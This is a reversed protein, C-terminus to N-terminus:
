LGHGSVLREMSATIVLETWAIAYSAVQTLLRPAVLALYILGITFTVLGLKTFEFLNFSRYGLQQALGSALVNTSTGIATIMGGLIAAFSLPILLKSVSIRQRRCWEEVILLFVTVVATNNIFATTPGM